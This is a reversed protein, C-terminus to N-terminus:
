GASRYSRSAQYIFFNKEYQPIGIFALEEGKLSRRLIPLAEVWKRQEWTLAIHPYQYVMMGKRDILSISSKSRWKVALVDDLREPDVTALVIGLLGKRM